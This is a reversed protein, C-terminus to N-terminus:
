CKKSPITQPWLPQNGHKFANRHGGKEVKFILVGDDIESSNCVCVYLFLYSLFKEEEIKFTNDKGNWRWEIEIWTIVHLEHRVVTCM